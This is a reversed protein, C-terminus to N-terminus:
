RLDSQRDPFTLPRDNAAATAPSSGDLALTRRLDFLRLAAFPGGVRWRQVAGVERWADLELRPDAQAQARRTAIRGASERLLRAARPAVPPKLSAAASGPSDSAILYRLWGARARAAPNKQAAKEAADLRQLSEDPPGAASPQRHPGCAALLVATALASGRPARKVPSGRGIGDAHRAR